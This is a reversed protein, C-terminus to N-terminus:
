KSGGHLWGRGGKKRQQKKDRRPQPPPARRRRGVRKQKGLVTKAFKGWGGVSPNPPVPNDIGAPTHKELIEAFDPPRYNRTAVLITGREVFLESYDKDAIGEARVKDDIRTRWLSKWQARLEDVVTRWEPRDM